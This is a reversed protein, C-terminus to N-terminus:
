RCYQLLIAIREAPLSDATVSLSCGEHRKVAAQTRLFPEVDTIPFDVKATKFHMPIVIKPHLSEVVRAAEKADITYFGGVPILLVDVRGLAEITDADLEHGLDGLHVLRVDSDDLVVITNKGRKGGGVEDHAVSMGTIEVSGVSGRLPSVFVRPGGSISDGANHDDHGHTIVVADAAEDIPAYALAGGFSGSRYPDLVIRSGDRAEVLFSSHGYYTIRM